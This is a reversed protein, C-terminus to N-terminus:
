EENKWVELFPFREWTGIQRGYFDKSSARQEEFEVNFELLEISGFGFTFTLGEFAGVTRAPGNARGGVSGM